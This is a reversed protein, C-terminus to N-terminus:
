FFPGQPADEGVPYVDVANIGIEAYWPDRVQAHSQFYLSFFLVAIFLTKQM